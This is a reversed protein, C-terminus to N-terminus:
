KGRRNWPKFALMEQVLPFKGEFTFARDDILLFAAPKMLPFRLNEIKDKPFGWKVLWKKM